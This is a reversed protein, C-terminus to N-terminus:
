INGYVPDAKLESETVIGSPLKYKETLRSVVDVFWSDSHPTVVIKEILRNLDCEVFCGNESIEMGARPRSNLPLGNKIGEPPYKTIIARVEKEHAYAKRKYGFLDSPVLINVDDRIFDIYDVSKLYAHCGIARELKEWTTKIVVGQKNETYLRWMAASETDSDHWCTVAVFKRWAEASCGNSGNNFAELSSLPYSGEFPDAFKDGRCFHLSGKQLIATFKALDMYKWLSM